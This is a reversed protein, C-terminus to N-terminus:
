RNSFVINGSNAIFWGLVTDGNNLDDLGAWCQWQNQVMSKYLKQHLYHLELYMQCCLVEM